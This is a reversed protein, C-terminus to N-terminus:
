NENGRNGLFVFQILTLAIVVVGLAIAIAAGYGSRLTRVGAQYLYIIVTYSAYGPGGSTIIYSQGFVQLQAIFQTVTVFLLTPRLLPLTISFFLQRPGAGDIRAAEYLAEPIGQLGALFLLMPFGFGWWITVLSLSPLVLSASSLWQVKPLGFVNLVYNIIGFQTDLMWQWIIGVVGVSLVGPAYFIVRFFDRGRLPQNVTLAAALAVITIGVVTMVAFLATNRLSTWWVPDNLLETYNKLGRYPHVPQLVNWNYFSIYIGYIVARATFVLFFLVFPLLFMYATLAERTRNGIQFRGVRPQAQERTAPITSIQAM